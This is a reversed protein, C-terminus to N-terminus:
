NPEVDGFFLSRVMVLGWNLASSVLSGFAPWAAGSSFAELAAKPGRMLGSFRDFQHRRSPPSGLLSGFNVLSEVTMDSFFRIFNTCIRLQMAFFFLVLGSSVRYLLWCRWIKVCMVDCSKTGVFWQSCSKWAIHCWQGLNLYFRPLIRLQIGCYVGETQQNQGDQRYWSMPIWVGM